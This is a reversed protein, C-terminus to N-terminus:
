DAIFNHNTCRNPFPTTPICTFVMKVHACCASLCLCVYLCPRETTLHLPRQTPHNPNPRTPQRLAETFCVFYVCARAALVSVCLLQKSALRSPGGPAAIGACLVVPGPGSLIAPGLVALSSPRPPRRVDTLRADRGSKADSWLLPAKPETAWRVNQESVPM